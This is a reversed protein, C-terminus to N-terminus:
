GPNCTTTEVATIIEKKDDVARHTKYCPQSKERGRRVLTAEPDTQSRPKPKEELKAETQQVILAVSNLSANARVLSSDLHVKDGGVLGAIVCQGVVRTFLSRFM